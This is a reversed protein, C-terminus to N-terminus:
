LIIEMGDIAIRIDEIGFKSATSYIHEEQDELEPPIHTLITRKVGQEVIFSVIDDITVHTTELFLMDAEVCHPTLDDLSLLDGSYIVKKGKSEIIFYYSELSREPYMSAVLHRYGQLHKNGYASIRINEDRFFAGQIIPSLKFPFPLKETFIYTNELWRSLADLGEQPLYIKLPSTRDALYMMQILMPLGSCHDPHMHSICIIGIKHHDISCRLLSSSCGEGADVLYLTNEVHILLSAHSRNPVPVGSASGIITSTIM